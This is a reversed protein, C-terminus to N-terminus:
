FLEITNSQQKIKVEKKKEQLMPQIKIDTTYKNYYYLYFLYMQKWIDVKKYTKPSKNEKGNMVICVYWELTNFAKPSIYIGNNICWRRAESESDSAAYFGMDVQSKSKTGSGM